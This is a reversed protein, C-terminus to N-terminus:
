GHVLPFSNLHVQMKENLQIAYSPEKMICKRGLFRSLRFATLKELIIYPLVSLFLFTLEITNQRIYCDLETTDHNNIQRIMFLHLWPMRLM